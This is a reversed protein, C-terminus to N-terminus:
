GHPAKGRNIRPVVETLTMALFILGCGAYGIGPIRENLFLGGFLAAFLAESSLFVAAQSGTTHRQAVAQITFALGSSFIGAFLIEKKAAYVAIWDLPELVIAIVLGLLSCVGFQIASLTLPRGTEKGCKEILLVQVAWFIACLITLFDGYKLASLDGGSLLYIGATSLFAAPWIIFHPRKRLFVVTLLPTFVVYLGTLFGSNTVTTSLLGTQQSAMGLFLVLGIWLFGTRGSKGLPRQPSRGAEKLAFPLVVLTALAFRLGIFLFPGIEKMASSQAVFGMGWIAGAFLLLINAQTRTV